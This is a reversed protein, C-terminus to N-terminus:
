SKGFTPSEKYPSQEHGRKSFVLELKAKDKVATVAEPVLRLRPSAPKRRTLPWTGTWRPWASTWVTEWRTWTSVVLERCRYCPEQLLTLTLFQYVIRWSKGLRLPSHLVSSANKSGVRGRTQIGVRRSKKRKVAWNTSLISILGM